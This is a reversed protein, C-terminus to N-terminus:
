SHALFHMVEELHPIGARGGTMRCKMGAVACAFRLIEPLSWGQLIGYAFAGHFVDGCGTTDEVPVRFAAQHFEGSRSLGFAGQEGGTVVVIKDSSRGHLEQYLQRAAEKFDRSGTWAQAFRASPIVITSAEVLERVCPADVQEADLIVPIGQARALQAARLAARSEVTDVLVVRARGIIEPTVENPSVAAVDQTTYFITRSGTQADVIIISCRAKRDAARRSPSTDIGESELERILFESNEDGGFGSLIRSRVGLRGLTVMATAVLGGGQRVLSRIPLKTDAEPYRDVTCLLDLACCGVGLAPPEKEDPPCISQAASM